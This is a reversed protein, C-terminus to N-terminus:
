DVKSEIFEVLDGVKLGIIEDMPKGSLWEVFNISDGYKQQLKEALTVFEISELELGENFSTNMDIDIEEIWDEAVVEKIITILDKLIAQQDTM